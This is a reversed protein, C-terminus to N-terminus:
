TPIKKILYVSSGGEDADGRCVMLADTLREMLPLGRGHVEETDAAPMAYPPPPDFGPGRDHVELILRDHFDWISLCVLDHADVKPGIPAGYLIANTLAEGLAINLTSCDEDSVGAERCIQGAKHRAESIASPDAPLQMELLPRRVRRAAPAFGKQKQPSQIINVVIKDRKRRWGQTASHGPQRILM